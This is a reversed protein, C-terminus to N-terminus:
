SDNGAKVIGNALSKWQVKSFLGIAGVGVAVNRIKDTVAGAEDNPKLNLDIIQVIVKHDKQTVIFTSTAESSYFHATEDKEGVPNQSPRVRFGISQVADTSIEKLEEVQVWDYGDGESSGPGPIDIKFYDGKEVFRNLKEGSRDVLYFRGSVFGAVSHWENVNLLRSKAVEYFSTAEARNKFSATSETEIDKGTYQEPIIGLYDKFEM